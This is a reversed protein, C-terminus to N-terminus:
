HPLASLVLLVVLLNLFTVGMLVRGLPVWNLLPYAFATFLHKCDPCRVVIKRTDVRWFPHAPIRSEVYRFSDVATNCDPCPVVALQKIFRPRWRTNATVPPATTTDEAGSRASRQQGKSESYGPLHWTKVEDEAFRM